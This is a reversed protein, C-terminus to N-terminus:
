RQEKQLNDPVDESLPQKGSKKLRKKVSMPSVDHVGAIDEENVRM